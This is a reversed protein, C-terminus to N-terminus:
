PLARWQRGLQARLVVCSVTYNIRIRKREKLPFLFTVNVNDHFMIGFAPSKGLILARPEWVKANGDSYVENRTYYIQVHSVDVNTMFGIYLLHLM